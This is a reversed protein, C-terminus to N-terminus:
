SVTPETVCETLGKIKGRKKPDAPNALECGGREGVFIQRTTRNFVSDMGTEEVKGIEIMVELIRASSFPHVEFRKYEFGEGHVAIVREHLALITKTQSPTATVGDLPAFESM